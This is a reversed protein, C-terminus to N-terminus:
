GVVAHGAEEPILPEIAQWIKQFDEPLVSSDNGFERIVARLRWLEGPDRSLLRLLQELLSAGDGRCHSSTQRRRLRRGGGDGDGWTFEADRTGDLLVRLFRMFRDRDTLLARLAKLHRGEPMAVDAVLVVVVPREVGRPDSFRARVFRTAKRVDLRVSFPEGGLFQPPLATGDVSLNVAIGDVLQVPKEFALTLECDGADTPACRGEIRVSAVRRIAEEYFARAATEEEATDEDGVPEWPQLLQWLTLDSGDRADDPDGLVQDIGMRDRDGSLILVLEDNWRFAAETANASGLVVTATEGHDFAFVKAHIERDIHDEVGEDIAVAETRLTYAQFGAAVSASLASPRAVLFSDSAPATPLRDLTGRGLFPSIVLRRDCSKPFVNPYQGSGTWWHIDGRTAGVPLALITGRLDEVISGVLERQQQSMGVPSRAALSVFLDALPAAAVGSAGEAHNSDLRVLVDWSADMTLNRSGILVRIGREGELSEFRLVWVKPHFTSHAGVRVPFVIEDVFAVLENAGRGKMPAACGAQHFVVMRSAFKRLTAALLIPDIGDIRDGVAHVTWAAPPIFLADLDLTFTTGVAAALEFGPPPRFADLLM